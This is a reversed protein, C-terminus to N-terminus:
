IHILSLPTRAHYFGDARVPQQFTHSGFSLLLADPLIDQDLDVNPGLCAFAADRGVLQGPKQFAGMSQGGQPHAAQHGDRRSRIRRARAAGVKCLHAAQELPRLGRLAAVHAHLVKGHAHAGIKCVSNQFPCIQDADPGCQEARPAIRCRDRICM